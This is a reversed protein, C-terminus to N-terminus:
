TMKLLKIATIVMIQGKASKRGRERKTSNKRYIRGSQCRLRVAVNEDDDSQGALGTRTGGACRLATRPHVVSVSQGISTIGSAASRSGACGSREENTVTREPRVPNEASCNNSPARHRLRNPDTCRSAVAVSKQKNALM